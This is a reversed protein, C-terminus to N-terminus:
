ERAPERVTLVPVPSTRVLKESVSGLVYRDFGTRGHTGLVLLDIDHEDVYSRVAKPISSAFQVATTPSDIGAETASEAAEDVIRHARGELSDIQLESRVDAGLAATEVVSLFHLAAGEDAAIEIGTELAHDACVSGDTPVLVNRYPHEVRSDDAYPHLTLVPVDAQRVVRETVSGLLFRGIGRRGHTPMVIMDVGRDNAYDVIEQHPEGRTVATVTGVGRDRARKAAKEVLEGGREELLDDTDGDIEVVRGYLTSAVNLVYVTADHAAALDLVHDFAADAGDSGDTPFLIKEFM